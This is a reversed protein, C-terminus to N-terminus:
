RYEMLVQKSALRWRSGSWVGGREQTTTQGEATLILAKGGEGM